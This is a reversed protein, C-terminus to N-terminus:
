NNLLCAYVKFNNKFSEERWENRIQKSFRVLITIKREWNKRQHHFQYVHVNSPRTSCDTPTRTGKLACFFSSMQCLAREERM